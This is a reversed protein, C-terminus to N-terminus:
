LTVFASEISWQRGQGTSGGLVFIRFEDPPKKARFGDPQFHSQRSKPIEYRGTEENLVFLPHVESFGVFPDNFDTPKGIGLARLTLECALLPFLGLSVAVARFLLSKWLPQHLRGAKGAPGRISQRLDIIGWAM